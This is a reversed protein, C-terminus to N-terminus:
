LFFQSQIRVQHRGEDIGGTYLWFYDLQIKFDHKQFYWNLGGGLEGQRSLASESQRSPRIEGFRAVLELNDTFLYGAQAFAGYGVRATEIIPNAPDSDDRHVSSGRVDRFFAQTLFSFGRLKFLMEVNAHFFDFSGLQYTDQFTSRSRTSHQNYAFGATFALRPDASRAHDAEVYDEFGGFPLYSVRGVYLLGVDGTFRNRGEGGFLGVSYALRGDLGGVDNSFLQIGVDRDLNFEGTVISRDVFQLASSSNVRQRDHPVKMQGFRVNMDRLGTWTMYADRLPLRLDSETDRNSFGLQLYYQWEPGFLHGQFLLRARRVQFSISGDDGADTPGLATALLQARARINLMFRNDLSEFRVGRGLAVTVRGTDDVPPEPVDSDVAQAEVAVVDVDAPNLPPGAIPTALPQSEPTDDPPAIPTPQAEATAATLLLTLALARSCTTQSM